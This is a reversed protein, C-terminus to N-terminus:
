YRWYEKSNNGKKAKSLYKISVEVL